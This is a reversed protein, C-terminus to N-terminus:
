YYFKAIKKNNNYNIIYLSFPNDKSNFDQM